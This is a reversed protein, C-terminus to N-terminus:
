VAGRGGRQGARDVEGPLLDVIEAIEGALVAAGLDDGVGDLPRATRGDVLVAGAKPHLIDRCRLRNRDDLLPMPGAAVRKRLFREPAAATSNASTSGTSHTASKPM